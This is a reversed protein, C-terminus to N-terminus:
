CGVAVENQFVLRPERRAESAVAVDLMGELVQGKHLTVLVDDPNCEIVEAEANFVEKDGQKHRFAAVIEFLHQQV